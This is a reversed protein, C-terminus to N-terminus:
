VEVVTWQVPYMDGTWIGTSPVLVNTSEDALYAAWWSFTSNAAIIMKCKSMLYMDYIITNKNLYEMFEYSIDPVDQLLAKAYQKDDTFVYYKLTDTGYQKQLKSITSIYYRTDLNVGLTLYDGGRIHIAVSNTGKLMKAIADIEDDVIKPQFIKKLDDRYEEFFRYNAWGGYLYYKGKKEISDFFHSDYIYPNNGQSIYQQRGLAAKQCLKNLFARDIIRVGHYYSIRKEYSLKFYDLGFERFDM